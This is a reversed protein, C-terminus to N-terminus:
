QLKETMEYWSNLVRSKNFQDDYFYPVKRITGNSKQFLIENTSLVEGIQYLHWGNKIFIQSIDNWQEPSITYCHSKPTDYGPDFAFLYPEINLFKAAIDILEHKPLFEEYIVSGLCNKERINYLFEILGDTLDMGSTIAGPMKQVCETVASCPSIPFLNYQTFAEKQIATLGSFHNAQNLIYSAWGIGLETSVAIIDGAKAGSRRIVGNKKIVGWSYGVIELTTNIDLNGGEIRAGYYSVIDEIGDYIQMIQKEDYDLSMALDLSFGIPKAGMAIVDSCTCGAIWRGYFRSEFGKPLPRSIQSPHDISYVLVTDNLNKAGNIINNLDIVICDDFLTKNATMAYKSLVRKIFGKEGMDAEGGM